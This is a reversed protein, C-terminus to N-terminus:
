THSIFFGYWGINVTFHLGYCHSTLKVQTPSNPIDRVSSDSGVECTLNTYYHHWISGHHIDEMHFNPDDNPNSPDLHSDQLSKAFGPRMFTKRQEQLLLITPLIKTPVQKSKGDVDM